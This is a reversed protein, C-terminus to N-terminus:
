LMRANMLETENAFSFHRNSRAWRTYLPIINAWVAFCYTPGNYASVHDIPPKSIPRMQRAQSPKKLKDIHFSKKRAKTSIKNAKQRYRRELFSVNIFSMPIRYHISVNWSHIKVLIAPAIRTLIGWSVHWNVLIGIGRKLTDNINCFSWRFDWGRIVFMDRPM